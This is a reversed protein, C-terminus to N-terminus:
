KCETQTKSEHFNRSSIELGRAVTYTPFFLYTCMSCINHIHNYINRIGLIYVVYGIIIINMFVVVLLVFWNMKNTEFKELNEKLFDKGNLIEAIWGDLCLPPLDQARKTTSGLALRSRSRGAASRKRNPPRNSHFFFAQSTFSSSFLISIWPHPWSKHHNTIGELSNVYGGSLTYKFIIKRRGLHSINIEQLTITSSQQHQIIWSQQHYKM